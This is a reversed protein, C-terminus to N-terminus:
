AVKELRELLPILRNLVATNNDVSKRMEGVMEVMHKNKWTQEGDSDPSHWRYLESTQRSIEKVADAVNEVQDAHLQCLATMGPQVCNKKRSLFEFVTRLVLICFIGGIGIQTLNEVDILAIM